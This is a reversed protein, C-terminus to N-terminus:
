SSVTYDSKQQLDLVTVVSINEDFAITMENM